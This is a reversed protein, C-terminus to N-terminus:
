TEKSEKEKALRDLGDKLQGLLKVLEATEGKGLCAWPAYYIRNTQGEAEQRLAKGQETIRYGGDTAEIWGRGALEALAQQYVEESHMRFPLKEALEAATHAEDRWVFTLAEWVHGVVGYPRWAAIHADDRFRLLDTIYQDALVTGAAGKGPDTWRSSILAPKEAPEAASRTSEVLRWLLSNLRTMEAAPLPDAEALARHAAAFIGKVTQCGADTLRVADASDWELQGLGVREEFAETFRKPDSYPVMAQYDAMTFPGPEVSHALSLVFWNQPTGGAAEIAGRMVDQYFPGFARGADLLLTWMKETDM